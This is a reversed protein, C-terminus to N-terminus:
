FIVPTCNNDGAALDQMLLDKWSITAIVMHYRVIQCLILYNCKDEHIQIGSTDLEQGIGGFRTDKKYHM